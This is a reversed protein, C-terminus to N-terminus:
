FLFVRIILGVLFFIGGAIIKTFLFSGSSPLTTPTIFIQSEQDIQILVQNNKSCSIIDSTEVNNKNINNINSDYTSGENCYFSLKTQGKLIPNFTITALLGRGTRFDGPSKVLGAIYIKNDEIAKNIVEPFYDGGVINETKLFKPDFVIYVDVSTIEEEESDVIIKISFPANSKVNQKEPEFILYAAYAERNVFFMNLILFILFVVVGKKFFNKIM